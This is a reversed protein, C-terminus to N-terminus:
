VGEEELFQRVARVFAEPQDTHVLHGGGPITVLRAAPFGGRILDEDQEVRFPSGGGAVFLSPGGYPAAIPVADSVVRYNDILNQLSVRWAFSGDEKRVVNKLLFDRTEKQPISEALAADLSARTPSSVM